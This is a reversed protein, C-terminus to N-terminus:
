FIYFWMLLLLAIGGFFMTWATKGGSGALLRSLGWALVYILTRDVRRRILSM